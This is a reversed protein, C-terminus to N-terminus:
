LPDKYESDDDADEADPIGVRVYSVTGKLNFKNQILGRYNQDYDAIAANRANEDLHAMDWKKKELKRRHKEVLADFQTFVIIIPISGLDVTTFFTDEADQTM